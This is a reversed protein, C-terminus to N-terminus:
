KACFGELRHKSINPSGRRLSTHKPWVSTHLRVSNHLYGLAIGMTSVGMRSLFTISSASHLSTSSMGTNPHRSPRSSAVDGVVFSLQQRGQEPHHLAFCQVSVHGAVTHQLLSGPTDGIVRAAPPSPVPAQHLSYASCFQEVM